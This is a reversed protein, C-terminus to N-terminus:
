PFERKPTLVNRNSFVIRSHILKAFRPVGSYKNESATICTITHASVLQMMFDETPYYWLMFLLFVFESPICLLCLVWRKLNKTSKSNMLNFYYNFITSSKYTHNLSFHLRHVFQNFFVLFKTNQSVMM